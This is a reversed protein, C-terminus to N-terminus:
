RRLFSAAAIAIPAARYADLGRGTPGNGGGGGPALPIVRARDAGNALSLAAVPVPAAPRQMALLAADRQPADAPTGQRQEEVWAAMVRARYPEAREPTNSHYAGAARAWDQRTAHLESLFRAAYRANTLPDFGQELGAFANPHHHLNIQMCGIDIIRVGRAQLQRVHAVAEAQTQFFRGQGEANITWPWPSWLGTAPDRRGSETRGIAVLLGPPLHAEREATRIAARCLQGTEVAPTPSPIAIAERALLAAALLLAPLLFRLM